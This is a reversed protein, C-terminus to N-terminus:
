DNLAERITTAVRADTWYDGHSSFRAGTPIRINSVGSGFADVPGGIIDGRTFSRPYHLNHWRTAAFVGDVALRRGAYYREYFVSAPWCTPLMERAIRNRFDADSSAMLFPAYSLPSGLTIFDTVLWPVNRARLDRWLRHQEETTWQTPPEVTDLNEATKRYDDWALRLVDYGIVSGLSHGVLIVRSYKGRYVGNHIQDLLALGRNRIRNRAEIDAPTPAFYRSADALTDVALTRLAGISLRWAVAFAGIVLASTLATSVAAASDGESLQAVLGATALLAVAAAVVAVLLVLALGFLAAVQIRRLPARQDPSYGGARRLAVRLAWNRLQALDGQEFEPAWYYEFYDVRPLGGSAPVIIRRLDTAGLSREPKSRLLASEGHISTVLPVITEMPLQRGIGHVVLVAVRPTTSRMRASFAGGDAEADKSGSM